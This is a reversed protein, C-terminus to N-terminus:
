LLKCAAGEIEPIHSFHLPFFTDSAELIMEKMSQCAVSHKPLIEKGVILFFFQFDAISCEKFFFFHIFLIDKFGVTSCVTPLHTM